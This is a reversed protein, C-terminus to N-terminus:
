RWILYILAILSGIVVVKDGTHGKSDLLWAICTGGLVALLFMGALIFCALGLLEGMYGGFFPPMAAGM